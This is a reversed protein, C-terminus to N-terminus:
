VVDAAWATLRAADSGYVHGRRWHAATPPSIQPLTTSRRMM